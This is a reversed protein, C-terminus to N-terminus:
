VTVLPAIEAFTKEGIGTVQRLDDVSTFGGHAERWAIIRAAMAPGVRPLTELAAADASNLNILGGTGTSGAAAPQGAASVAGVVPVVIQEGDKVTRALNVGSQEANAAFGGAAAIADVLRAGVSVTVLGPENVAGTVHVYLTGVSETSSPTPAASPDNALIVQSASSSGMMSIATGIAVALLAAIILAPLAQQRLRQRISTRLREPIFDLRM